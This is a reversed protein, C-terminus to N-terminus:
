DATWLIIVKQNYILPLGDTNVKPWRANM